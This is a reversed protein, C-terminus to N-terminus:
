FDGYDSSRRNVNGDDVDFRLTYSAGSPFEYYEDVGNLLLRQYTGTTGFSEEPGFWWGNEGYAVAMRFSGGQFYATASEGDRIYLSEVLENNEDYIKLYMDKNDNTDYVTIEVSGSSANRYLIGSVPRAQFCSEALEEADKLGNSNKFCSYASFYLEKDLCDLGKVYETYAGKMRSVFSGEKSALERLTDYSDPDDNDFAVGADIYRLLDAANSYYTEKIAKKDAIKKLLDKANNQNNLFATIGQCYEAMAKSDLFNGAQEFLGAAKDYDDASVSEAITKEANIYSVYQGAQGLDSVKSFADIAQDLEGDNYYRLADCYTIYRDADKYGSLGELTEYAKDYEGREMQQMAEQYRGNRKMAPYM